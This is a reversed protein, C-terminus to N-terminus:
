KALPLIWGASVSLSDWNYRERYDSQYYQWTNFRNIHYGASFELSSLQFGLRFRYVATNLSRDMEDVPDPYNGVLRNRALGAGVALFPRFSGFSEPAKLLLELGYRYSSSEISIEAGEPSPGNFNGYDLFAFYPVLFLTQSLPFRLAIGLQLGDYAGQGLRTHDPSAGLQGYPHSVGADVYIQTTPEEQAQAPAMAVMMLPFVICTIRFARM